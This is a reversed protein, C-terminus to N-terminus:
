RRDLILTRSSHVSTSGSVCEPWTGASRAAGGPLFRREGLWAASRAAADFDLAFRQQEGVREDLRTLAPTSGTSAGLTAGSGSLVWVSSNPGLLLSANAEFGGGVARLAGDHWRVVAPGCLVWASGDAPVVADGHVCPLPLRWMTGGRQLDVEVVGAETTILAREASEWAMGSPRASWFEGTLVVSLDVGAPTRSPVSSTGSPRAALALAPAPESPERLLLEHPPRPPRFAARILATLPLLDCVEAELHDRDLLVGQARLVASM